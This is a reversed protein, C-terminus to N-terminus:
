EDSMYRPFTKCFYAPLEQKIFCKVPNENFAKKYKKSKKCIRLKRTYQPINLQIAIM